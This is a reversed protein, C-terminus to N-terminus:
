QNFISKSIVVVNERSGTTWSVTVHIISEDDNVHTFNFRRKFNTPTHSDNHTFFGNTTRYLKTRTDEHGSPIYDINNNSAYTDVICVSSNDCRNSQQPLNTKWDVDNLKNKERNYYIYEILDQALYQAVFQDRANTAANLGKQTAVMPGSIATMIIAIAVMTEVITFGKSKKTFFNKM